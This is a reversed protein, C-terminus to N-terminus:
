RIQKFIEILDKKYDNFEAPAHKKRWVLDHCKLLVRYYGTDKPIYGYGENFLSWYRKDHKAYFLAIDRGPNGGQSWEWDVIGTIKKGDTLVNGRAPDGHVLSNKRQLKYETLFTKVSNPINLDLAKDLMNKDYDFLYSNEAKLSHIKKLIKGFEIYILPDFKIEKLNSGSLKTYVLVSGKHYILLPSPIDINKLMKLAKVENKFQHKKNIKLIYKDDVDFVESSVGENIESIKKYKLPIGDLIKKIGSLNM